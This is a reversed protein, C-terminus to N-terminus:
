TEHICLDGPKLDDGLGAGTYTPIRGSVIAIKVGECEEAYLTMMRTGTCIGVRTIIVVTLVVAM